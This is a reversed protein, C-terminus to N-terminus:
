VVCAVSPLHIFDSCNYAYGAEKTLSFQLYLIHHLPIKGLASTKLLCLNEM